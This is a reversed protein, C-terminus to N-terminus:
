RPRRFSSASLGRLEPFSPRLHTLILSRVRQPYTAAFLVSLLGFSMDFLTARESGAADLVALLDDAM